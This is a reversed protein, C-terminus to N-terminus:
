YDYEQRLADLIECFKEETGFFAIAKNYSDRLGNYVTKIEQYDTYGFEDAIDDLTHIDIFTEADSLLYYLAETENLDAMSGGYCDWTISKNGDTVKCVWHKKRWDKSLKPVNWASDVSVEIAYNKFFTM